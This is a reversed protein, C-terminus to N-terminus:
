EGLEGKRLPSGGGEKAGVLRLLALAAVIGALGAVLDLTEWGRGPIRIQAAELIVMFPLTVTLTGLDAGPNRNSGRFCRWVLWALVFFLGFHVLKDAWPWLWSPIEFWFEVEELTDGTTLLAAATVGSWALAPLYRTLLNGMLTAKKM